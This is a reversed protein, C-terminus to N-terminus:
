TLPDLYSEDCSKFVLINVDLLSASAFINGKRFVFRLVVPM